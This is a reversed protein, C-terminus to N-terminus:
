SFRRLICEEFMPDIIKYNGRSLKEAFGLEILKKVTKNEVSPNLIEFERLAEVSFIDKNSAIMILIKRAYKQGLVDLALDYTHRERSILQNLAEGSDKGTM